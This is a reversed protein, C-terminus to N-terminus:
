RAMDRQGKLCLSRNWGNRGHRPLRTEPHVSMSEGGTQAQYLATPPGLALGMNCGCPGCMILHTYFITPSLLNSSRVDEIHVFREVVSSIVRALRLLWNRRPMCSPNACFDSSSIPAVVGKVVVFFARGSLRANRIQRLPRVETPPPRM